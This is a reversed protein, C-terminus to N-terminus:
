LDAFFEFIMDGFDPLNEHGFDPYAVYQKQSPIKNYAAFCTSPLTTTDVLGLGMLVEAQIRPALHQVDIYGLRTFIEEEREHRPDFLRFFNKLEAYASGGMDMEWTRRYDSLFPYRFAAKKIRPELAACAISLGGGQSGGTCAIRNADAEPIAMITHALRVTDLYINRFLLKDEHDDLGRIIQGNLTNGKVGGVDESAGGQGRCDMAAVIYGQSVFNLKDNWDGSNITYGHFQLIAPAPGSLGKPILLKSYIRAGGVGTFHLHFCDAIRSALLHPVVEVDAPTAELDALGREWYADFDAPRPNRGQYKLLDALPM